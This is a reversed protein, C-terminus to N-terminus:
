HLRDHTDSLQFRCSFKPLDAIALNKYYTYRKSSKTLKKLQYFKKYDM